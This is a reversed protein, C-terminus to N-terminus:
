VLFLAGPLGHCILYIVGPLCIYERFMFLKRQFVPLGPGLL